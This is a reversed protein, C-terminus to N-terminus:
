ETGSADDYFEGEDGQVRANLAGAIERMKALIAQDPNKVVIRGKRWDFCVPHAHATWVALGPGEVRIVEGSPSTAEAFGDLRFDPQWGVFTQWEALPIWRDDALDVWDEGRHIHM